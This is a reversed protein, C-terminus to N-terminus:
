EDLLIDDIQQRVQDVSSGEKFLPGNSLLRAGNLGISKRGKRSKLPSVDNIGGLNSSLSELKANKLDIYDITEKIEDDNDSELDINEPKLAEVNQSIDLESLINDIESDESNPVEGSKDTSDKDSGPSNQIERDLEEKIDLDLYGCIEKLENDTSTLEVISSKETSLEPIKNKLLELVREVARKLLTDSDLHISVQNKLAIILVLLKKYVGVLKDNSDIFDESNPNEFKLKSVLQVLIKVVVNIAAMNSNSDISMCYKNAALLSDVGIEYFWVLDDVSIKKSTTEVSQAFGLAIRPDVWSVLQTCIQTPTQIKSKEVKKMELYMSSCYEVLIPVVAKAMEKQNFTSSYCYIPFFYSLCQRLHQNDVSLIHYYLVALNHLAFSANNIRRGYLLKSLGEAAFAQVEIYESELAGLFLSILGDKELNASVEEVGYVFSLDFLAKLGHIQFEPNGQQYVAVLLNANGVAMNKDLLSCLALCDVACKLLVPENQSLAPSVYDQTLAYIASHESLPEYCRELLAKFIYLSKLHTLLAVAKREESNVLLQAEEGTQQVNSIVELTIQTFDSEDLSLKRVIDMTHEILQESIDPIALLKRSLTLMERRGIEDMFDLMKVIMILQLVIFDIEADRGDLDALTEEDKVGFDAGDKSSTRGDLCKRILKVITLLEPIKSELSSYDRKEKFYELTHRLIFATEPQLDEWVDNSFIIKESIEPFEQLIAKITDDAIISNVVDLGEFLKALNYDADRLWCTTILQVCAKQVIQDRDHIGASLIEERKEISFIKHNIKPLIKVFLNRRNVNDTDRARELLFPVTNPNLEVGLMVARRVEPNNDYRMLELLKNVSEPNSSYNGILLRCLAVAANARVGAERDRLRGELCEVLEEYLDEDIEKMLLVLMSTLQCCRLRVMKEKSLFGHLLHLIISETFRSTLTDNEQTKSEFVDEDNSNKNKNEIVKSEKKYGYHIFSVIFKLIREPASEKKKVALVLNLKDIFAILFQKETEDVPGIGSDKRKDEQIKRLEVAIRQHAAGSRQAADFIRELQVEIPINDSGEKM